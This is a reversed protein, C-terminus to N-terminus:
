EETDQEAEAAALVQESLGIGNLTARLESIQREKEVMQEEALAKEALIKTLQASLTEKLKEINM